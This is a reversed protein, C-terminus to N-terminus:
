ITEIQTDHFIMMEQGPLAANEKYGSQDPYCLVEMPLQTLGKCSRKPDRYGDVDGDGDDM